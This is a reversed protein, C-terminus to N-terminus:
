KVQNSAVIFAADFLVCYTNYCGVVRRLYHPLAFCKYSPYRDRGHGTAYLLSVSILLQMRGVIPHLNMWGSNGGCVWPQVM